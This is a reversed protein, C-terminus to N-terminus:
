QDRETAVTRSARESRAGSRVVGISAAIVCAMAVLEVPRLSEGLIVLAALAAFAPELSMLISFVNSPMRRLAVIELGYPIVSALLGVALGQAWIDAVPPPWADMLMVPVALAVAGIMVAGTVGSVGEWSRGVPKAVVIYLAWFAAATLALAVGVPDLDGPTFGLLAVGAGALGVWVFDRARRSGAVAVALPGLFELTVAMGIPIREIALYFTVNMGVMALAYAGLWGWERPRRGTLRPRAVVGLILAASALRLWTVTLPTVEAYLDKAVSSGVQVTSIAILVLLVPSATM